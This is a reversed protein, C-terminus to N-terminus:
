CFPDCYRPMPRVRLNFDSFTSHTGNTTNTSPLEDTTLACQVLPVLQSLVDRAARSEWTLWYISDPSDNGHRCSAAAALSQPPGSLPCRPHETPNLSPVSPTAHSSLWTPRAIELQGDTANVSLVNNTGTSWCCRGDIDWNLRYKIMMWKVAIRQYMLVTRKEVLNLKCYKTIAVNQLVTMPILSWRNITM